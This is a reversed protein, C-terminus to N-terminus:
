RFTFTYSSSNFAETTRNQSRQPKFRSAQLWVAINYAEPNMEKTINEAYGKNKKKPVLTQKEKAVITIMAKVQQSTVDKNTWGASELRKLAERVNAENNTATSQAPATVRPIYALRFGCKECETWRGYRNGSEWPHHIGFCPWQKKNNRPDRQDPGMTRAPDLEATQTKKSRGKAKPAAEMIEATAERVAERVMEKLKQDNEAQSSM